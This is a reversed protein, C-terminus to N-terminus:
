MDNYKRTFSVGRYCCSPKCLPVEGHFVHPMPWITKHLQCNNKRMYFGQLNPGAFSLIPSCSLLNWPECFRRDISAFKPPPASLKGEEEADEDHGHRMPFGDGMRRQRDLFLKFGRRSSEPRGHRAQVQLFRGLMPAHFRGRMMRAVRFPRNRDM